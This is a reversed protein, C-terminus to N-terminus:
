SELSVKPINVIATTGVGSKSSVNIEGQLHEEVIYKVISLGLGRNVEGTEFDVKTSFGPSFIQKLFEEDIGTGNDSVKFIHRNEDANHILSIKSNKQSKMISDVSNMVLNRLVSMLYYHKCTYFNEGIDFNFKIEKNSRKAEKIMTEFLINNLDEYEMGKDKLQREAIDNIGRFVFENDAKIESIDKVISLALNESDKDDSITNRLKNAKSIVNDINNMNKEVWFMETKLQSAFLLLRKYRDEHERKIVLINYYNLATLVIWVVSSRIVSVIILTPIIELINTETLITFRIFVEILNSAFDCIIFVIYIYGLNDKRNNELFLLFFVSYVIYFMTEPMYASAIEVADGYLVQHVSLRLLFIMGGSLFGFLIPNIGDYHYLFIVFLIVGASVVFESELLGLNVQSALAVLISISFMKKIIKM